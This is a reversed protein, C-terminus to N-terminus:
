PNYHIISELKHDFGKNFLFTKLGKKFIDINCEDKLVKPLKFYIRPGHYFIARFAFEHKGLPLRFKLSSLRLSQSYDFLNRIYVPQNLSLAKQILLLAKFDIRPGIPLWHLNKLHTTIPDRYKLGLM